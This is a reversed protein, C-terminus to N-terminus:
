LLILVKSYSKLQKFYRRVLMLLIVQRVSHKFLVCQIEEKLKRIQYSVAGKTICLENAVLSFSLNRAAAEFAKLSDLSPLSHKM